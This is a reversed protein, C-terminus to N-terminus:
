GRAREPIFAELVDFIAASQGRDPGPLDEPSIGPLLPTANAARAAAEMLDRSEWVTISRVGGDDGRLWFGALLGPQQKLAPLFREKLNREQRARLDEDPEFPSVAIRAIM